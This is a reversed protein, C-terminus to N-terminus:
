FKPPRDKIIQQLVLGATTLATRDLVIRYHHAMAKVSDNLLLAEAM